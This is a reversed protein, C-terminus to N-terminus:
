ETSGTRGNAGHGRRGPLVLLGYILAVLTACGAHAHAAEAFLIAAMLLHLAALALHLAVPRTM